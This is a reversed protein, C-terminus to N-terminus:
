LMDFPDLDIASEMIEVQNAFRSRLYGAMNDAFIKETHYHGADILAIGTERAKQGHRFKTDGTILLECGKSRVDDISDAGSGACVAVERIMQEPNGVYNVTKDIDLVEKVMRVIDELRRPPQFLGIRGLGGSKPHGTDDFARIESLGLRNALDDNNGGWASDFSTHASYVSIGNGILRVLYTGMITNIDVKSIPQFILPHHTLIFDCDSAIAEDIIRGTIELCILIKAVPKSTLELQIGSNDWSEAIEEPALDRIAACLENISITM